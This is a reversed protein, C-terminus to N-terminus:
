GVNVPVKKDTVFAGESSDPRAERNEVGTLPGDYEGENFFRPVLDVESRIAVDVDGPQVAVTGVIWFRDQGGCDAGGGQRVPAEINKDVAFGGLNSRNSAMEDGVSVDVL